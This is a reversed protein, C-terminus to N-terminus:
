SAAEARRRLAMLVSTHDLGLLWGLRPLPLERWNGQVPVGAETWYVAGKDDVLRYWCNRGVICSQVHKRLKEAAEGRAAVVDDHRRSYLESLWIKHRRCVCLLLEEVFKRLPETHTIDVAKQM